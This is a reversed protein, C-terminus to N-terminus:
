LDKHKFSFWFSACSEPDVKIHSRRWKKYVMLEALETETVLYTVLFHTGPYAGRRHKATSCYRSAASGMPVIRSLYPGRTHPIM